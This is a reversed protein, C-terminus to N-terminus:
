EAAPTEVPAEVPVEAQPAEEVVPKEEVAKSKKRPTAIEAKVEEVKVEEVKVEEAKVEEVKDSVDYVEVIELENNKLATQITSHNIQDEQIVTEKGGQLYVTGGLLRLQIGEPCIAKIKAYKM